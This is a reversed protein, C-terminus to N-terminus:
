VGSRQMIERIQATAGLIQGQENNKLLGLQAARTIVAADTMAAAPQGGQTALIKDMAAGNAIPGGSQPQAAIREALEKVESLLSRVEAIGSANQEITDLRREIATTDITPSNNDHHINTAALSSLLANFRQLTPAIARQIAPEINRYGAMMDQSGGDGDIDLYGGFADIDGDGDPDLISLMGMCAECMCLIMTSQANRLHGDRMGHLADQTVHSIRSGARNLDGEPQPPTASEETNDLIETMLGDARVIAVDCGPSGANDVVSIEALDHDYYEPISRGGREVTRVKYKGAPVGISFGTLTGDKIKEWTDAAGRSIRARVTIAHQEDNPVVELARGVAKPQHMERINGRWKAFAKKSSEYDFVTDYYDVVDSTAQGEIIWEKDDRRTIPVYMHLSQTTDLARTLDGEVSRKEKKNSDGDTWTDPLPFGKRKAIKKIRAKITAQNGSANHLREAAHIVDEAVKIPFARNDPDGFDELPINERESQSYKRRMVEPELDQGTIEEDM